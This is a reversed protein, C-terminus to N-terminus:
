RHTKNKMCTTVNQQSNSDKNTSCIDQETPAQLIFVRLYKCEFLTKRIPKYDNLAYASDNRSLLYTPRRDHERYDHKLGTEM